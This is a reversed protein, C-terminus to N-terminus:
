VSARGSQEVPMQVSHDLHFPRLEDPTIDREHHMLFADRVIDEFQHARTSQNSPHCLARTHPHRQFVELVKWGWTLRLVAQEALQELPYLKQLMISPATICAGLDLLCWIVGPSAFRALAKGLPSFSDDYYFNVNKRQGLWHQKLTYIIYADHGKELVDRLSQQLHHSPRKPLDDTLAVPCSQQRVPVSMWTTKAEAFAKSSLAM